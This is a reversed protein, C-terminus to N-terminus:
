GRDPITEDTWSEQGDGDPVPDPGFGGFPHCRAVRKVALWCGRVTGHREVALRAYESCTPTYRCTGPLIPSIGAQYARILFVIVRRV